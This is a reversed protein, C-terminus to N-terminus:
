IWRKIRLMRKMAIDEDSSKIEEIQVLSDNDDAIQFACKMNAANDTVVMFCNVSCRDLQDEFKIRINDSTHPPPVERFFLM